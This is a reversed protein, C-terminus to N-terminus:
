DFNFEKTALEEGTTKNLYQAKAYVPTAIVNNIDASLQYYVKVKTDLDGATILEEIKRALGEDTVELACNSSSTVEKTILEINQENKTSSDNTDGSGSVRLRNGEVKFTCDYIPFHKAQFDYGKLSPVQPWFYVYYELGKNDSVDSINFINTFKDPYSLYVRYDGRYKDLEANIRPLEEKAIDQKKFGDQENYYEPSLMNLKEEDPFDRTTQAIFFPTLWMLDNGHANIDKYDSLPVNNKAVIQNDADQTLEVEKAPESVTSDEVQQEANDNDLILEDEVSVKNCSVVGLLLPLIAAVILKNVKM